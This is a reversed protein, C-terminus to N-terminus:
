SLCRELIARFTAKLMQQEFPAFIWRPTWFRPEITAEYVVLTGDAQPEIRWQGEHVAFDGEVAQFAITSPPTERVRFTIRATQHYLPFGVRGEQQLLLQDGRRELTKSVYLYPIFEALHDYDTLVAWVRAPVAPVLIQAFVHARRSASWEIAFALSSAGLETTRVHQAACPSSAVLLVVAIHLSGLLRLM